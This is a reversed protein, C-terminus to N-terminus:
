NGSACWFTLATGGSVADTTFDDFMVALDDPTLDWAHAVRADIEVLLRQREAQGLPGVDVGAARAFDWSATM